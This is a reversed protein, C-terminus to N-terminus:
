FCKKYVQTTHVYVISFFDLLYKINVELYVSYVRFGVFCISFFFITPFNGIEVKIDDSKARTTKRLYVKKKRM